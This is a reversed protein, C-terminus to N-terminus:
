VKMVPTTYCLMEINILIHLTEESRKRHFFKRHYIPENPLNIIFM